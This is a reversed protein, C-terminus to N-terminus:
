TETPGEPGKRRFRLLIRLSLWVTAVVFATFIYWFDSSLRPPRSGLNGVYV